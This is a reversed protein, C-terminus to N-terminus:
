RVATGTDVTFLHSQQVALEVDLSDGERYRWRGSRRCCWACADRWARRPRARHRRGLARDSAGQGRLAARAPRRGGAAPRAPTRRVPAAHGGPVPAAGGGVARGGGRRLAAPRQGRRRLQHGAGPEDQALRGARGRVPRGAARVARGAHRGPGDPGRAHRRDAPGHEAGRARGAHRLAHDHRARSAAAQVRRAHRPAAQRRPQDLPEDLLLLKPRRILARGIAIRQQEGGSATAPKRDLTHGIRLLEAIEGVRRTVEAEAM